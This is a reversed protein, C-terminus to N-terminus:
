RNDNALMDAQSALWGNVIEGAANYMCLYPSFTVDKGRLHLTRKMADPITNLAEIGEKPITAGPRMFICMGKGNWGNRSAVGGEKLVELVRGFSVDNEIEIIM